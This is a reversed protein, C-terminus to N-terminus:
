MDNEDDDAYLRNWDDPGIGSLLIEREDGSLEPLAEQILLMGNQWECYREYQHNTLWISQPQLHMFEPASVSILWGERDPTATRSPLMEDLVITM